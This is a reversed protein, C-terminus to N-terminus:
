HLDDFISAKKYLEVANSVVEYMKLKKEFAMRKIEHHVHPPVQMPKQTKKIKGGKKIDM